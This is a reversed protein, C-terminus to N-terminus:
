EGDHPEAVEYGPCSAVPLRPYRLYAADTDSRGCRLFRAGKASRIRRAFRCRACLGLRAAEEELEM